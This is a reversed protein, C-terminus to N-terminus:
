LLLYSRAPDVRAAQFIDDLLRIGSRPPRIAPKDEPRDPDQRDPLIRRVPGQLPRLGRVPMRDPHPGLIKRNKPIYYCFSRSFDTATTQTQKSPRNLCAALPLSSLSLAGALWTRRNVAKPTIAMPGREFRLPRSRTLGCKEGPRQVYHRFTSTKFMKRRKSQLRRPVSHAPRARAQGKGRLACMSARGYFGSREESALVRQPFFEQAM